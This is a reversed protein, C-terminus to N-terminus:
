QMVSQRWREVMDIQGQNLETGMSHMQLISAAMPNQIGYGMGAYPNGFPPMGMPMMMQKQQAYQGMDMATPSTFSPIFSNAYMGGGFGPAGFNNPNSYINWGNMGNNNGYLGGTFANGVPQQIPMQPLTSSRHLQQREHMGLLGNSPKSAEKNYSSSGSAGAAPHAALIDAMSLRKKVTPQEEPTVAAVTAKMEKDRAEREAQLRRRRQGLTEEEEPAPSGSTDREKGKNEKQAVNLEGGFQSMLESTFDGSVPRTTPLGTATGGQAKLRRIRQALTEDEDEQPTASAVMMTSARVMSRPKGQLRDRRQSLPENDEMERREMLGMPRTRDLHATSKHPFLVALPVDEDEEEEMDHAGMSEWALAIRKQKRSKKEVQAVADLELLTSHAGNPYATALPRTRQKLQQKRIQLEALLTTPPGQYLADESEEEQEEHEDEEKEDEDDYSLADEDDEDTPSGTHDLADPMTSRRKPNELDNSISRRSSLLNSLSKRKNMSERNGPMQSARKAAKKNATGYVEAGLRGAFAHDTFASVPAFASADLISDLTAVASQEKVEVIQSIGEPEFFTTARLQPPMHDLDLMSRRGGMSRRHHQPVYEQREISDGEAFNEANEDELVDPLWIASKRAAPPLTSLVQTRRKNKAMTSPATSLRPPLNLLMPVPAPYYVMPRGTAPDVYSPLRAMSKRNDSSARQEELKPREGSPGRSMPNYHAGDFDTFLKQALEYTNTSASTTPRDAADSQIEAHRPDFLEIKEIDPLTLTASEDREEVISTTPPLPPPLMATSQAAFSGLPRGELEPEPRSGFRSGKSASRGRGKVSNQPSVMNFGGPSYGGSRAASNIEIISNPNSFQRTVVTMEIPSALLSSRRSDALKQEDHMHRIADEISSTMSLKEATKELHEVNAMFAGQLTHLDPTPHRLQITRGSATRVIPRQAALRAGPSIIEHNNSTGTAPDHSQAEPLLERADHAVKVTPSLVPSPGKSPEQTYDDEELMEYSTKPKRSIISRLTNSSGAAGLHDGEHQEMFLDGAETSDFDMQLPQFVPLPSHQPDPSASTLEDDSLADHERQAIANYAM